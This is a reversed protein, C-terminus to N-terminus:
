HLYCDMFSLRFLVYESISTIFTKILVLAQYLAQFYCVANVFFIHSIWSSYSFEQYTLLRYAKYFFEWWFLYLEPLLWTTSYSPKITVEWIYIGVM